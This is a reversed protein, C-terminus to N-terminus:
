KWGIVEFVNKVEDYVKLKMAYEYLKKIDIYDDRYENIAYIRDEHDYHDPKIFLECICREKDYTKVMNGFPTEIDAIGLSFTDKRTQKIVANDIKPVAKGFPITVEYNVFQKNSLGNLFLATEGSFIINKHKIYMVFFPDEIGIDTVYIGKEIKQLKGEKLLRTIYISPINYDKMIKSYLYGNHKNAVKIVEEKNM